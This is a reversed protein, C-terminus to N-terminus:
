NYKLFSVENKAEYLRDILKKELESFGHGRRWILVDRYVNGELPCRRQALEYRSLVAEPVPSDWLFSSPLLSVLSFGSDRDPVRIMKKLVGEKPPAIKEPPPLYPAAHDEKVIEAYHRLAEYRVSEATALPDSGRLLVLREFEWVLDSELTKEKLYDAFYQRHATNYRIVGIKYEGDAVGRIASLADSERVRLDIGESLDAQRVFRVTGGFLYAGSPLVVSLNPFKDSQADALAEIKNLQYVVKKAYELFATGKPTPTVGKSYRQFIVFGLTDEMERIAKSLNPQAIFLNEAAQTISGTRAVELAYRFFATNM